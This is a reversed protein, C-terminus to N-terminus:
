SKHSGMTENIPSQVDNIRSLWKGVTQYELALGDNQLITTIEANLSPKNQSYPKSNDLKTLKAMAYMVKDLAKFSQYPVDKLDDTSMRIQAIEKELEEIRQKQEKNEDKLNKFGEDTITCVKPSNILEDLQVKKFRLEDYSISSIAKNQLFSSNMSGDPLYGIDFFEASSLYGTDGREYDYNRDDDFSMNTQKYVAEVTVKTKFHLFENDNNDTLVDKLFFLGKIVKVGNALYYPFPSVLNGCVEVPPPTYVSRDRNYITCTKYFFVDLKGSFNLEKLNDFNYKHGTEKELYELTQSIDLYDLIM